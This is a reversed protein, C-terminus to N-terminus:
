NARHAEKMAFATTVIDKIERKLKGAIEIVDDHSLADRFFDGMNLADAIQSAWIELQEEHFVLDAATTEAKSPLM